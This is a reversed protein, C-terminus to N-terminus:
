RKYKIYDTAVPELGSQRFETAIQARHYTSHNIIHFLVDRVNNSFHQGSTNTYIFIDEPNFQDLIILSQEYNILDIKKLEWVDHLQWVGFGKQVSDIRNNWIQHANLIHCFLSLAKESILDSNKHIVGAIQQNYHHSYEFLEKFFQKMKNLQEFYYSLRQGDGTESIESICIDVCSKM